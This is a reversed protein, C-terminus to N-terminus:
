EALLRSTFELAHKINVASILPAYTEGRKFVVPNEGVRRPFQGM